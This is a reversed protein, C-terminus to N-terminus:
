GLPFQRSWLRPYRGAYHEAVAADYAISSADGRESAFACCPCIATTNQPTHYTPLDAIAKAWERYQRAAEAIPTM